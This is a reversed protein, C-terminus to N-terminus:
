EKFYSDVIEQPNKGLIAELMMLICTKITDESEYYFHPVIDCLVYNVDYYRSSNILHFENLTDTLEYLMHDSVTINELRLKIVEIPDPSVIDFNAREYAEVLTCWVELLDGDPTNPKADFLRGIEALTNQYDKDAKIPKVNM